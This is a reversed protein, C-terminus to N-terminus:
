KLEQLRRRLAALEAAFRGPDFSYPDQLAAALSEAAAGLGARLVRRDSAALQSVLTQVALAAQKASQYDATELADDNEAVALLLRGTRGDDWRATTFAPILPDLLRGLREATAAVEVAPTALRALQRALEEIGADIEHRREPAMEAILHRAVAFHSPSWRPLGPPGEASSRQWRQESLAHHCADCVLVSLEPYGGDAGGARRAIQGLAARFGAVQGVAWARVGHTDGPQEPDKRREAFPLWHAPMAESWNDLEFSLEPHGAAILEHGVTRTGDGLHCGLCVAARVELNRLDLMGATVSQRHTWEESRHGELWGSAPGHCAECSIGDELELAGQRRAAPVELAHCDLCIKSGAAAGLRLRRAIAASRDNYLVSFSQAHLDKKEWIYFEDQRVNLLNRPRVSGHCSSSGCSAPGLYLGSGPAPAAPAQSTQTPGPASIAPPAALAPSAAPPGGAAARASWALLALGLAAVIGAAGAWRRPNGAWIAKM